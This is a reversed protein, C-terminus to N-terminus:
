VLTLDKGHHANVHAYCVERGQCGLHRRKERRTAVSRTLHVQDLRSRGSLSRSRSLEGEAIDIIPRRCRRYWAMSFCAHASRSVWRAIHSCQCLGEVM